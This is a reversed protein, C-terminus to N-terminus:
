DSLLKELVKFTGEIGLRMYKEIFGSINSGANAIGNNYNHTTNDVYNKIDIKKGDKVDKEFQKIKDDTLQVKQYQKYDYYGTAQSLYLTIFIIFLFLMIINFVKGAKM